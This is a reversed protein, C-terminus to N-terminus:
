SEKDQVSMLSCNELARLAIMGDNVTIASEFPAFVTGDVDLRGKLLVFGERAKVRIEKKDGKELNILEVKFDPHRYLLRTGTGELVNEKRLRGLQRNFSEDFSLVDMAKDVHLERPQGDDGLRNWDWVRYTVGSSQQAEVLTVGAGIAHVSGAPVVFFDGKAVPYFNLFGDVKMGAELATKFEKKTVGPKFGLYIGAGPEADLILWCETKGSENEHEQAYEDDPHVQVSLHDSTDIFKVLYSLNVLDNLCARNLRLTSPGGPHSSIEWTEGIKGTAEINKIQKLKKGGWVKFSVHPALKLLLEM